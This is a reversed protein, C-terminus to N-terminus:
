PPTLPKVLAVIDLEFGLKEPAAADPSKPLAVEINQVFMHPFKNEFDSLFKGFDHYFAEVSVHFVAANTYSFDPMLEFRQLRERQIDVFNVAHTKKFEELTLFGWSYLDGSAMKKELATLRDLSVALNSSVLGANKVYLQGRALNDAAATKKKNIIDLTEQQSSIVSFWLGVVVVLTGMVVLILQDRKEKSLKNM